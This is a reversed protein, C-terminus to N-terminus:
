NCELLNHEALILADIAEMAIDEADMFQLYTECRKWDEDTMLDKQQHQQQQKKTTLTNVSNNSSGYVSCDDVNIDVNIHYIDSYGDRINDFIDFPLPKNESPHYPRKAIAELANTQWEETPVGAEAQAGAQELSHKVHRASKNELLIWFWPDEYVLKAQKLPNTIKQQLNRAGPNDFWSVFHVYAANYKGNKQPLLDIECVVGIALDCFVSEIQKKTISPFVRPIYLSMTDNFSSM